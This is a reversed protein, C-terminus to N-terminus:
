GTASRALFVALALAVVGAARTMPLPLNRSWWQAYGAHWRLPTVALLLASVVITWGFWFFMVPTLAEPARLILGAGALGRGAQEILNVRHSSAFRGIAARAQAPRALAFLGVGAIWAAFLLVVLLAALQM